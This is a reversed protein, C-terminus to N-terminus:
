GGKPPSRPSRRGSRPNSAPKPLSFLHRGEDGPMPPSPDKAKSPRPPALERTPDDALLHASLMLDTKVASFDDRAVWARVAAQAFVESLDIVEILPPPDKRVRPDNEVRERLRQLVAVIDTKLPVKFVVDVRRRPHYSYNLIVDGFVKSNPVVVKINDPTALETTFLDLNRVTGQRTGTEIVDGVRYPRFLLIMVGAAVNSLAGQLALGIALSAAGLVALISTTQVGLQQLVAVFGVVIVIYRALSSGFSQLTPDPHVRHFRGIVRRVLSAIWGAAWLTVALIIAAIVLNVALRSVADGFQVLLREDLHLVGNGAPDLTKALATM